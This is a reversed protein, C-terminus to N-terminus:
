ENSRFLDRRFALYEEPGRVAYEDRTVEALGIKTSFNITPKGTSGKTTTILIVGSAARAGFVAASSADKLIDMSAIDNPNIDSINGNYVVGDLVIMPSTGANLSNPGRIEMSAGGSASTSQTANFGAVTGTLMDTLQTMPQNQFDEVDISAVSGTLDSKKVTGYGVVVVED